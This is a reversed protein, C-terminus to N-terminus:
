YNACKAARGAPIFQEMTYLEPNGGQSGSGSPIFIQGCGCQSVALGSGHRAQKLDPGRVWSKGDFTHVANYARGNGEGGAVMMRGDCTTGTNAGARPLPFDAIREWKRSSFNFCYSEKKNWWFFNGKGGDRGGAICLKGKMMAGGVHDRPVPLDPLAKIFWKSTKWNFADVWGLTTAHKGHGGRNGAVVYIFDGRRVAAAGGRQRWNPLGPRTSWKNKGIDYVWVKDNNQERPYGGKWSTVVWIKNAVAVCQMHHMDVGPGDKRTWVNTKPDYINVPKSGRGGVLYVKGGWMVACAEHRPTLRGKKVVATVWRGKTSPPGSPSKPPPKPKPGSPTKPLGTLSCPPGRRRCNPGARIKSACCSAGIVSGRKICGTGGCIKCAKPCCAGWRSIGRACTPDPSSFSRVAGKCPHGVNKCQRPRSLISNVCCSSGVRRSRIICNAGGCTTCAKPCCAGRNNFIGRRCNPDPQPDYWAVTLTSQLTLLVLLACLVINAHLPISM